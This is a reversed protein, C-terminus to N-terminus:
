FCSFVIVWFSMWLFVEPTSRPYHISGSILVRRQGNITIAKSDYSVSATTYGILSCSFQLLLLLILTSMNWMILKPNFLPNHIIFRIKCSPLAFSTLHLLLFYCLFLKSEVKGRWVVVTTKNELESKRKASHYIFSFSVYINNFFVYM